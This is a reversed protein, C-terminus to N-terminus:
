LVKELSAIQDEIRAHVTRQRQNESPYCYVSPSIDGKAFKLYSIASTLTRELLAIRDLAVAMNSKANKMAEIAAKDRAIQEDNKETM